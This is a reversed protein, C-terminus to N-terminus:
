KMNILLNFIRFYSRRSFINFESSLSSNATNQEIIKNGRKFLTM